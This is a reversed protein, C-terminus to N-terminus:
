FRAVNRKMMKLESPSPCSDLVGLVYDRHRNRCSLHNGSLMSAFHGFGGLGQSICKSHALMWLDVFIQFYAQPPAKGSLGPFNSEDFHLSSVNYDPRAVIKAPPGTHADLAMKERSARMTRNSAWTSSEHLLYDLIESTDTAVYIHSTEPMAKVVCNAANDGINDKFAKTTNLKGKFGRKGPPYMARIHAAGYQGPVLGSEKVLSEIVGGLAKSPKFMRRFLGPWMLKEQSGTLRQILHGVKNLNNNVFIFRTENWPAEHISVHWPMRRQSKYNEESRNGYYEWEKKYNELQEDPLRWDLGDDPPVFFEELPYPKTYKILLKRGTQHAIWIFYPLFRLRDTLGGCKEPLGGGYKHCSLVLFRENPDSIIDNHTAISQNHIFNELWEPLSFNTFANDYQFNFIADSETATATEVSWSRTVISSDFDMYDHYIMSLFSLTLLVVLIRDIRTKMM